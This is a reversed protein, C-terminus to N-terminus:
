RGFAWAVMLPFEKAWFAGGHGGPRETMIVQRQSGRLADAWRTANERFFPEDTGAVLYVRPLQNPMERPPRYGGGPSAAFVAGYIDPHRVGVALAFEAGLSAGWVATHDVDFEENFRSRVWRGVDDVFFKEHAAFREADVTPVYEKFRGEDDPMGHMGVIMTAPVKAAELAEALKATHWHGDAAFVVAAAPDPPVYVTVQRGGDYDFPENIVQGALPSM